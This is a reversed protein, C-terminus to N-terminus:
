PGLVVWVWVAVGVVCIVTYQVTRRRHAREDDEATWVRDRNAAVFAEAFAADRIAYMRREREFWGSVDDSYDCSETVETQKEVRDARTGRWAVVVTWVFGAVMLAPLWWMAWANPADLPVERVSPWTRAGVWVFGVLPIILPNLVFTRLVERLLGRRERTADHRAVCGACFPIDVSAITSWSARSRVGRFRPRGFAKRVTIREGAPAGCCPCLAPWVLSRPAGRLEVRHPQPALTGMARQQMLSRRRRAVPADTTTAHAM